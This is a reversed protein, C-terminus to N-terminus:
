AALVLSVQWTPIGLYSLLDEKILTLPLIPAELRTCGSCAINQRSQLGLHIERGERALIHNIPPWLSSGSKQIERSLM